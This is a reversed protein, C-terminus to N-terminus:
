MKQWRVSKVHRGEGLQVIYEGVPLAKVPLIVMNGGALAYLDRRLVVKGESNRIRLLVEEGDARSIFEILLRETAPNPHAIVLRVTERDDLYPRDDNSATLDDTQAFLGNYFGLFFLVTLVSIVKKM